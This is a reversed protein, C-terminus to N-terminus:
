NRKTARQRDLEHCVADLTAEVDLAEGKRLQIVGVCAISRLGTERFIQAVVLEAEAESVVQYQHVSVITGEPMGHDPWDAM